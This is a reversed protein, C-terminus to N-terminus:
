VEVFTAMVPNFPHREELSYLDDWWVRAHEVVWDEVYVENGGYIGPIPEGSNADVWCFRLIPPSRLKKLWSWM